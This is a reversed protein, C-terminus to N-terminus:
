LDASTQIVVLCFKPFDWLCQLWSLGTDAKVAPMVSTSHVVSCRALPELETSILLVLLFNAVALLVPLM